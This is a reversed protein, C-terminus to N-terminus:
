RTVAPIAVWISAGDFVIGTPTVGTTYKGLVVGDTGRLEFV